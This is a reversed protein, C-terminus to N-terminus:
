TNEPAESVYSLYKRSGRLRLEPVRPVRASLGCFSKGDAVNVAPNTVIRRLPSLPSTVIRAALAGTGGALSGGPRWGWPECTSVRSGGRALLCVGIVTVGMWFDFFGDYFDFFIVTM